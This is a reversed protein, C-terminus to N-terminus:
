PTRSSESSIQIAAGSRRRVYAQLGMDLATIHPVSM